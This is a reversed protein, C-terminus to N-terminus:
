RVSLGGDIYITQGTIYAGEDSCLLLTIGAIERPKGVHGVPVSQNNKKTPKGNKFHRRNRFTNFIGPALLNATIGVAALDSALATTMTNLAGKSCSYPLMGSYGHRQQISGVNIIRGWKQKRFIAVAHQCLLMPAIWNADWQKKIESVTQDLWPKEVQISANNILIHLGGLKRRIQSIWKAPQSLDTIDGPLAIAKGGAQGIREAEEQAVQVEIDQIAVACGQEALAGAMALGIGRGAGTILAVKGDLRFNM